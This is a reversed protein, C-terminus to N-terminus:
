KVKVRAVWVWFFVFYCRFFFGKDVSNLESYYLHNKVTIKSRSKIKNTGPYTQQSNNSQSQRRYQCIFRM